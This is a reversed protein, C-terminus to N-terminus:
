GDSSRAPRSDEWSHTLHYKVQIPPHVDSLAHLKAAQMILQIGCKNIRIACIGLWQHIREPLTAMVHCTQAGESRETSQGDINFSFTTKSM